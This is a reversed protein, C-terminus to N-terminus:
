PHTSPPSPPGSSGSSGTTTGTTGGPLGPPGSSSSSGGGGSSSGGGGGFHSGSLIAYLLAGGLVVLLAKQAGHSSGRQSDAAVITQNHPVAANLTSAIKGAVDNVAGQQINADTDSASTPAASGSFTGGLSRVPQGTQTDYVTSNVLLTVRRSTADQDYSRVTTLLFSDTGIVVAVRQARAEDVAGFPAKIDADTLGSTADAENLSRQVSPNFKSFSTATYNGVTNVRLKIADDLQATLSPPLGAVGSAAASPFLLISKIGAPTITAPVPIDQAQAAPLLTSLPPCVLALTLLAALRRAWPARRLSSHPTFM